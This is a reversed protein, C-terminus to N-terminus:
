TFNWRIYRKILEIHFLSMIEELLIKKAGTYRQIEIIELFVNEINQTFKTHKLFKEM